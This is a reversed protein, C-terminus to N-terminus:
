IDVTFPLPESDLTEQKWNEPVELVGINRLLAVGIPVKYPGLRHTMLSSMNKLYACLTIENVLYTDVAATGVIAGCKQLVGGLLIMLVKYFWLENGLASPIDILSQVIGLGSLVIQRTEEVKSRIASEKALQENVLAQDKASLKTPPGKKKELEARLEAEWDGKKPNKGVRNPVGSSPKQLVPTLYAALFSVM